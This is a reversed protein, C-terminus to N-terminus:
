LNKNHKSHIILNKGSLRRLGVAHFRKPPERIKASDQLGGEVKRSFAGIFLPSKVVLRPTDRIHLTQSRPQPFDQTVDIIHIVMWHKSISLSM